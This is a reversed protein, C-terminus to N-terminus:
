RREGISEILLCRSVLLPLDSGRRNRPKGAKTYARLSLSGSALEARSVYTSGGLIFSVQEVAPRM